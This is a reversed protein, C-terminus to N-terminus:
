RNRQNLSSFFLDVRGDNDYDGAAVGSGNNLVRNSASATPDLSNTFAIGTQAPTLLEFGTRGANQIELRIRRVGSDAQSAPDPAAQSLTSAMVGTLACCFLWRTPQMRTERQIRNSIYIGGGAVFRECSRSQSNVCVISKALM